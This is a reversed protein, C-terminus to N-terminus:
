ELQYLDLECNISCDPQDWDLTNESPIVGLPDYNDFRTQGQISSLMVVQSNESSNTALDVRTGDENFISSAIKTVSNLMGVSVNSGGLVYLMSRKISNPPADEYLMKISEKLSTEVDHTDKSTSVISTDNPLSSTRLSNTIKTIASNAIEYCSNITLDPNSELLADNDFVVTCNSNERLRKLSIGSNFIRDKEFQFPMIAFSIVNKQENKCIQSVIPAIASGGKGALNAMIIITSYQSIKGKIEDSMTNAFGRIVQMSPNVISQTNVKITMCDPHFDNKDNSVLLCDAELAKHTKVALKSGAGGLGVMLIPETLQFDM